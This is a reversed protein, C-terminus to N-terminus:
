RRLPRSSNAPRCFDGVSSGSGGCSLPSRPPKLMETPRKTSMARTRLSAEVFGRVAGLALWGVAQLRDPPPLGQV